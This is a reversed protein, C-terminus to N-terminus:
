ALGVTKGAPEAVVGTERACIQMYLQILFQLTLFFCGVPLILLLGGRPIVLPYGIADGRALVEATDLASRGTLFGSFATAILLAIIDMARRARGKFRTIVIDVTIHGGDKLVWAAVLFTVIFLAYGSLDVVAPIAYHFFVRGGVEITIMLMVGVLIAAGLYATVRYYFDLLRSGTRM